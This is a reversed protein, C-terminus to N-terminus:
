LALEGFVGGDQFMVLPKKACKVADTKKHKKGCYYCVPVCTQVQTRFYRPNSNRRRQQDAASGIRFTTQGGEVKGHLLKWM